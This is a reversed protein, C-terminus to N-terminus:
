TNRGRKKKTSSNSSLAECKSRLCEVMQPVGGATKQTSWKQSLIECVIQRLQSQVVMKRIEAEWTALIVPTLWLHRAIEEESSEV